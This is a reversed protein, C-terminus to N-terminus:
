IKGVAEARRKDVAANYIRTLAFHSYTLCFRDIQRCREIIQIGSQADAWSTTVSPFSTGLRNRLTETRATGAGYNQTLAAKIAPYYESNAYFTIRFLRLTGASTIFQFLPPGKGEGLDVWHEQNTLYRMGEYDSFWQCSVVGLERDESHAEAMYVGSPLPHDDCLFHANVRGEMEVPLFAKFAELTMGFEVGRMAFPRDAPITAEAM